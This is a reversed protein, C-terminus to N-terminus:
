IQNGKSVVVNLDSPVEFSLDYIVIIVNECPILAPGRNLFNFSYLTEPFNVMSIIQQHLQLQKSPDAISGFGITKRTSILKLHYNLWLTPMVHGLDFIRPPRRRHVM